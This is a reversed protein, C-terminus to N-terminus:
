ISNILESLSNDDPLDYKKRLRHKYTRITDPAVGLIAAMEKNTFKLKSLVIFRKDAPSLDSMKEKLRQLYGRHVQEFLNKFEEWEDDTLITSSQLLYLTNEDIEKKRNEDLTQQLKELENSTKEIIENKEHLHKTYNELEKTANALEQEAIKQQALLKNQSLKYQLRRRNILLMGLVFLMLVGILLGNRILVYYKKEAKLQRLEARNKETEYKIQLRSIGFVNKRSYLSDLYQTALEQSKYADKYKGSKYYYTAEASYYKAYLPVKDRSIPIYTAATDLCELVKQLNNKVLYIDALVMLSNVANDYGTNGVRICARIDEELLPIARDYQKKQYYTIGINGNIIGMWVRDNFSEALKHAAFFYYLASDFNGMQRYILGLTNKNNYNVFINDSPISDARLLMAKSNNYDGIRYYSNGIFAIIVKKNPFEVSNYNKAINYAALYHEFAAINNLKKGFYNNGIDFLLLAKYKELNKDSVEELLQKLHIIKKDINTLGKKDTYMYRALTSHIKIPLNDEKTVRADISDLLKFFSVSDQKRYEREILTDFLAVRQAFTEAEFINDFSSQGNCVTSFLILVSIIIGVSLKNTISGQM